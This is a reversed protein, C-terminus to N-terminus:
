RFQNNKDLFDMKIHHSKIMNFFELPNRKNIVEISFTAEIRLLIAKLFYM